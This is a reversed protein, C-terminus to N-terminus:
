RQMGKISRTFVEVPKPQPLMAFRIETGPYYDVGRKLLIHRTETTLLESKLWERYSDTIKAKGVVIEVLTDIDGTWLPQSEAMKKISDLVAWYSINKM